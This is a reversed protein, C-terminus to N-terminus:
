RSRLGITLKLRDSRRPGQSCNQGSDAQPPISWQSRCSSLNKLSARAHEWRAPSPGRDPSIGRCGGGCRRGGRGRPCGGDGGRDDRSGQGVGRGSVSGAGLEDSERMAIGQGWERSEWAMAGGVWETLKQRFRWAAPLAAHLERRLEEREKIELLRSLIRIHERCLARNEDKARARADLEKIKRALTLRGAETEGKGRLFLVRKLRELRDVEEGLRGEMHELRIKEHRLERTGLRGIPKLRDLYTKITDFLFM